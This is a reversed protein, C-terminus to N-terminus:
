VGTIYLSSFELLLLLIFGFLRFVQILEQILEFNLLSSEAALKLTLMKSRVEFLKLGQGSLSETELDHAQTSVKPYFFVVIM